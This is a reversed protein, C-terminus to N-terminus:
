RWIQINNCRSIRSRYRLLFVYRRGVLWILSQSIRRSINEFFLSVPISYGGSTAPDDSRGNLVLCDERRRGSFDGPARVPLSHYSAQKLAGTPRREMMKTLERTAAGWFSARYWSASFCRVNKTNEAERSRCIGLVCRMLGAEGWPKQPAM